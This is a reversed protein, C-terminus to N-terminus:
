VRLFSLLSVQVAESGRDCDCLVASDLNLFVQSIMLDWRPSIEVKGGLGHWQTRVSLQKKLMELCPSEAAERPLGNWHKVAKETFFNRGMDLGCRGKQLKLRQGRTRDSTAHFYLSVEVQSCCGSYM